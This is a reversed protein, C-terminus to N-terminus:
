RFLPWKLLFECYTHLGIQECRIKRPKNKETYVRAGKITNCHNIAILNTAMIVRLEKDSFSRTLAREIAADGSSDQMHGDAFLAAAPLAAPQTKALAAVLVGCLKEYLQAYTTSFEAASRKDSRVRVTDTSPMNHRISCGELTQSTRGRKRHAPETKISRGQSRLPGSKRSPEVHISLKRPLEAVYTDHAHKGIARATAYSVQQWAAKAAAQKLIPRSSRLMPPAHQELLTAMGIDLKEIQELFKVDSRTHFESISGRGERKGYLAPMSASVRPDDKHM